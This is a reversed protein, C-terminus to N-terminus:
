MSAMWVRFSLAMDIMVFHINCAIASNISPQIAVTVAPQLLLTALPVLLSRRASSLAPTNLLGATVTAVELFRCLSYDSRHKCAALCRKEAPLFIAWLPTPWIPNMM